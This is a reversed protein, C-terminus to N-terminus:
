GFNMRKRNTTSRVPEDMIYDNGYNIFLEEGNRIDKIAVIVIRRRRHINRTQFEVNINRNNNNHNVISGIGRILAADEAIRDTVGIGYPSTFDGYRNQLVDATTLEGMYPCIVDDAHFVIENEQAGRRNAFLGKGANPITSIKIQVHYEAILHHYCRPLGICVRNRCEEGNAKTYGCQQCNLEHHFSHEGDDSVFHFYYPMYDKKNRIKQQQKPNVLPYINIHM